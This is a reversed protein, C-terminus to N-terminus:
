AGLSVRDGVFYYDGGTRAAIDSLLAQDVDFPSEGLGITCVPIGRGAATAVPGSLVQDNTMGTNNWGDTLLVINGGGQGNLVQLAEQLGDGMNTSGETRLGSVVSQQANFDAGLPALVSATDSFKVLGVKNDIGLDRHEAALAALMSNASVKLAALKSITAPDTGHATLYDDLEKQLQILDVVGSVGAVIAGVPIKKGGKVQEVLSGFADQKQKLEAARPFGAPIVAPSSMSGSVDLVFVTSSAGGAAVAPRAKVASATRAGGAAPAQGPPPSFVGFSAGALAAPLVGHSGGYGLGGLVLAAGLVLGVLGRLLHIRPPAGQGPIPSAAAAPTPVATAMAAPSAPPTAALAAVPAMALAAAAGAPVLAAVKSRTEWDAGYGGSAAAVLENYFSLADQPRTAPDKTIAKGVLFAVTDPLQPALDRPDPVPAEVQMRMMEAPSPAQYPLRGTILEFLMIGASYLDSRADGAEGRVREPSMYAPTGLVVGGAAGPGAVPLPQGFDTVRPVGTADVVVTEPKLDQHLLGLAHAYGLGSLVGKLVGLAQEPHLGAAGSLVERLSAGEVQEQVLFARGDQEFFEFVRVCNASDLRTMAQADARFRELFGPIGILEPSLEKIAVQRQASKDFAVFLRGSAGRSIEGRAEYRAWGEAM